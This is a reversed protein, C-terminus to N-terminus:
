FIDSFTMLIFLLTTPIFIDSFIASGSKSSLITLMSINDLHQYCQDLSRKDQTFKIVVVRLVKFSVRIALGLKSVLRVLRSSGNDKAIFMM